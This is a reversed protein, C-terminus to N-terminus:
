LQKKASLSFTTFYLVYKISVEKSLNRTSGAGKTRSQLVIRQFMWSLMYLVEVVSGFFISVVVTLAKGPGRAKSTRTPHKAPRNSSRTM